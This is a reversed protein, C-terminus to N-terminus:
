LITSPDFGHNGVLCFRTSIHIQSRQYIKRVQTNIAENTVENIAEDNTAPIVETPTTAIGGVPIVETM